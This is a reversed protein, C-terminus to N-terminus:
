WRALQQLPTVLAPPLEAVPFDAERYLWTAWRLVVHVAYADPQYVSVPTGASYDAATTGNIAREVTLVGNEVDVAAVRLLEDGIRLLQGAIYEPLDDLPDVSVAESLTITTDAVAVADGTVDPAHWAADPHTHWGWYAEIQITADETVGELTFIGAARNVATVTVPQGDTDTVDILEFVDDPAFVLGDLVATAQRTDRVPEYRRSTLTEVQSQAAQLAAFLRDNDATDDVPLGLHRKFQYLTTIM